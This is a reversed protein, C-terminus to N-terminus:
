SSQSPRGAASTTSDDPDAPGHRWTTAPNGSMSPGRRVQSCTGARACGSISGLEWASPQSNSLWLPPAASRFRFRLSRSVSSDTRPPVANAAHGPRCCRPPPLPGGDGRARCTTSTAVVRQSGRDCHFSAPAVCGVSSSVVGARAATRAFFAPACLSRSRKEGVGKEKTTGLGGGRVKVTETETEEGEGSADHCV